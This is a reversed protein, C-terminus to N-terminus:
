VPLDATKLNELHIKVTELDSRRVAYDPSSAVLKQLIPFAASFNSVALSRQNKRLYIEGSRLYCIAADHRYDTNEPDSAAIESLEPLSKEYIAL